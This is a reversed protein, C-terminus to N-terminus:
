LVEIEMGDYAFSVGPPLAVSDKVYDINHSLHTLVTTKASVAESFEIAQDMSFHSPHPRKRLAGVILVKLGKLKELTEEPVGSCDTLYAADNIRYGLITGRGHYIPVPTIDLGFLKMSSNVASLLLRPKWGDYENSAFIYEFLHKIRAITREDAYCPIAGKQIINFIRLDDIGHLHDAHPHTFFVADIKEINNALSQARLDTSTDILINKDGSTVVASARTRKNKPDNSACVDCYCGIVPVGTSTGCGLIRIKM